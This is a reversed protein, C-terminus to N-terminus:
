NPNKCVNQGIWDKGLIMDLTGGAHSVKMEIKMELTETNPLSFTLEDVSKFLQSLISVQWRPEVALGSWRAYIFSMFKSRSVMNDSPLSNGQNIEPIASCM